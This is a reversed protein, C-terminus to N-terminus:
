PIHSILPVVQRILNPLGGIPSIVRWIPVRVQRILSPVNVRVHFERLGRQANFNAWDRRM